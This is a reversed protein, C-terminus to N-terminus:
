ISSVSAPLILIVDTLKLSCKCFHPAALRCSRHLPHRLLVLCFVIGTTAFVSALSGGTTIKILKSFDSHAVKKPIETANVSNEIDAEVEVEGEANLKLIDESGDGTSPRVSAYNELIFNLAMTIPLSLVITILSVLIIFV